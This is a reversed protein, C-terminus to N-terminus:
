SRTPRRRKGPTYQALVARGIRFDMLVDVVRRSVVLTGSATLGIDDRGAQGRVQLAWFPPLRKGPNQKRFFASSRIRARAVEFGTPRHLGVLAKKVATTVLVAPFARVLDDGLWTDFV